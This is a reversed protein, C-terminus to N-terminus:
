IARVRRLADELIAIAELKAAQRTAPEGTTSNVGRVVDKLNKKCWIESCNMMSAIDKYSFGEERLKIAENKNIM